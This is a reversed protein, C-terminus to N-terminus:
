KEKIEFKSARNILVCAWDIAFQKVDEAMVLASSKKGSYTCGCDFIEYTFGKETQTVATIKGYATPPTCNGLIADKIREKRCVTDGINFEKEDAMILEKTQEKM